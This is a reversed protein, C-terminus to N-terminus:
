NIAQQEHIEKYQMLVLKRTLDSLYRFMCVGDAGTVLFVEQYLGAKTLNLVFCTECDSLCPM